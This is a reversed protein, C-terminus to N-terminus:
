RWRRRESQTWRIEETVVVIALIAFAVAAVAFALMLVIATITVVPELINM